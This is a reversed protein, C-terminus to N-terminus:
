HGQLSPSTLILSHSPHPTLSCDSHPYHSISITTVAPVWGFTVTPSFGHAGPERLSGGGEWGGGRVHGSLQVRLRARPSVNDWFITQLKIDDRHTWPVSDEWSGDGPSTQVRTRQGVRTGRGGWSDCSGGPSGPACGPPPWCSQHWYIRIMHGWKLMEWLSALLPAQRPVLPPPPAAGPRLHPSPRGPLPLLGSDGCVICRKVGM